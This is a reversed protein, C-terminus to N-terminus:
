QSTMVANEGSAGRRRRGRKQMSQKEVHGRRGTDQAICCRNANLMLLLVNGLWTCQGSMSETQKRLGGSAGGRRAEEEEEEEEGREVLRSGRRAGLTETRKREGRERKREKKRHKGM